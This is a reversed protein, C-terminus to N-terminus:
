QLAKHILYASSVLPLVNQAFLSLASAVWEFCIRQRSQALWPDSAHGIEDFGHGRWLIRGARYFSRCDALIPDRVTMILAGRASKFLFIPARGYDWAVIMIIPVATCVQLSSVWLGCWAHLGASVTVWGFLCLLMLGTMLVPKGVKEFYLAGAGKDIVSSGLRSLVQSFRHLLIVMLALFCWQGLLESIRTGLREGRWAGAVAAAHLQVGFRQGLPTEFRDDKGWIGCLVIAKPRRLDLSRALAHLDGDFTLLAPRHLAYAALPMAKQTLPEQPDLCPSTAKLLSDGLSHAYQHTLRPAGFETPVYPLGFQIGRRCLAERWERLTQVEWASAGQVAPLVWKGPTEMLFSDLAGQESQAGSIPSLDIDIAVRTDPATHDQIVRLLALMQTRSVPSRGSFFHRYGEDDIAIVLPQESPVSLESIQAAWWFDYAAITSGFHKWGGSNAFLFVIAAVMVNGRLMTAVGIGLFASLWSVLTPGISKEATAFWKTVM